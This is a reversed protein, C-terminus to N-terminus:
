SIQQYIELLKLTNKRIDFLELHKFANNILQSSLEPNDILSLIKEVVDETKNPDILLGTKGHKIIEPVGGISSAIVPVGVNFSDLLSTGLGEMLTTSVSMDFGAILSKANTHFGALIVIGKLELKEIMLKLEKHLIGEGFILFRANKRNEYVLKAAEIFTQHNKESTLAGVNGIIIADEPLNFKQILQQRIKDKQSPVPELIEIGDYITTLRDNNFVLVKLKKEIAKSVSIIKKITPFNYKWRRIGTPAMNFLVRRTIMLPIRSRFLFAYWIMVGHGKSDHMHIIDPQINRIIKRISFIAFVDISNKISIPYLLHAHFANKKKNLLNPHLILHNEVDRPLYKLTYAIQQEGGRWTRGSSIHLVKM